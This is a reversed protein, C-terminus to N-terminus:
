KDARNLKNMMKTIKRIEKENALLGPLTMNWENGIKVFSCVRHGNRYVIYKDFFKEITFESMGAGGTFEVM